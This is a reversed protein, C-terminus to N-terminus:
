LSEGLSFLQADSCVFRYNYVLQVIPVGESRLAYYVSTSILPFVNQVLAVAPRKHRVLSKVETWTRRSFFADTGLLAKEMRSFSLIDSNHRSYIDVDQGVRRLLRILNEFVGSEGGPQQYYNHVLLIRLQLTEGKKRKVERSLSGIKSAASRM